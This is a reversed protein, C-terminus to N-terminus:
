PSKREDEVKVDSDEQTHSSPRVDNYKMEVTDVKWNSQNFGRFANFAQDPGAVPKTKKKTLLNEERFDVLDGIVRFLEGSNSFDRCHFHKLSEPIKCNEIMVPIVKKELTIATEWEWEVTKSDIANPTLLVLLVDSERISQRLQKKWESGGQMGEVDRWAEFGVMKLISHLMEAWKCGDKRSYSLFLKLM